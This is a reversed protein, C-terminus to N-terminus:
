GPGGGGWPADAEAAAVLHSVLHEFSQDLAAPAGFGGGRELTVFGHFAARFGRAHHVLRDRPIGAEALAEFLPFLARGLSVAHRAEAGPDAPHLALDYLGPRERAFRRYADALAPLAGAGRRGRRAAALAEGLTLAAEHAVAGRLDALGTVHTYLSPPRIGLERAVASLSFAGEGEREILALAAAVVQGRDVGRRVTM